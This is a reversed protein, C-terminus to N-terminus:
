SLYYTSAAAARRGTSPDDICYPQANEPTGLAVERRGLPVRQVLVHSGTVSRAVDETGVAGAPDGGLGLQPCM